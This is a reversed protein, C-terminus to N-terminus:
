NVRLRYRLKLAESRLQKLVMKRQSPSISAYSLTVFARTATLLSEKWAPQLAAVRRAYDIPGENDRRVYGAKGLASCMGLYLRQEPTLAPLGQKLQWAVAALVLAGVGLVFGAVRAPTIDGLVAKLVNLQTEGQYDLVWKVWLYNVAEVRLRLQNLWNINRYRLPSLPSDALFQEQNRALARELGYEIRLPSVAATPDIRRWRHQLWVESWAHADYQRVSVTGSLPNLDGGQYGAVVRAPIGAARVLFVFSSAYHECFGRRTTFLFEDVADAGLAPPQLTYYFSQQAFYNLIRNVYDVSGKSELLLQQAFKRAQPNSDPPLSTNINRLLPSLQSELIANPDSAVDFQIRSRVPELRVLRSDSVMHLKADNSYALPLTFLWNQYTPEQIITYRIPGVFGARIQQSERKNLMRQGGNARQWQRGDFESFIMGRWYMQSRPPIADAFVARFVLQDSRGLNSVDGPSMTDSMGTKAQHSPLPVSWLPEFRPFVLFLVLMLPVAQAFLIAARALSRASLKDLSHQHLAVLAATIVMLSAFLYIALWLEQSFLFGTVAVFYALYILLYVDRKSGVELLKLSFGSFLLAVTPELGVMTGFSRYIGVACLIAMIAKVIRPPLSWRGQYIMIRWVACCGYVLSVWWPLRQVHPLLLVVQALLLWALCNRPIQWSIAM